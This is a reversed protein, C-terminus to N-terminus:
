AVVCLIGGLLAPTIVACVVNLGMISHSFEQTNKLMLFKKAVVLGFSFPILAFATWLAFVSNLILMILAILGILWQITYVFASNRVGYRIVWHKRGHAKDAKADPVQNVLLLNNAVVAMLIGAWVINITLQGALVVYSGVTIAVGFGFGPSLLCLLPFRNLLPTYLLVVGISFLGLASLFMPMPSHLVFYFGIASAIGLFLFASILVYRESKQDQQLAGSGGSFPTKTTAFDLKSKHDCYENHSNVSIHACLAAIFIGVLIVPNVEVKDLYAIGTALLVASVALLLFPPRWTKLLTSIPDSHM